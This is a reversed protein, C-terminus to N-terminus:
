MGRETFRRTFVRHVRSGLRVPRDLRDTDSGVQTQRDAGGARGLATDGGLRGEGEGAWSPPSSFPPTDALAKEQAVLDKLRVGM